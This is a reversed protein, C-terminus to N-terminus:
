KLADADKPQDLHPRIMWDGKSFANGEEGPTAIRSNGTTSSDYGMFIGSSATPKFDLCINFEAPVRTPPLDIHIWDLQAARPIMAYPKKWSAIPKNQSDCLAIEFQTAPAQPPGYRAARIDIRTLDSPAM